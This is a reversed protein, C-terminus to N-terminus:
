NVSALIISLLILWKYLTKKHPNKEYNIIEM